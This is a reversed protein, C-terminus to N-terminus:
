IRNVPLGDSFNYIFKFRLTEFNNPISMTELSAAFPHGLVHIFCCDHRIEEVANRKESSKGQQNGSRLQFIQQSQQLYCGKSDFSLESQFFELTFFDVDLVLMSKDNEKNRIKCGMM